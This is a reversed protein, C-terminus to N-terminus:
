SARARSSATVTVAAQVKVGAEVTVPNPKLVRRCVAISALAAIAAVKAVFAASAGMFHRRAPSLPHQNNSPSM